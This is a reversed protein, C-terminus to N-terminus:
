PHFRRIRRDAADRFPDAYQFQFAVLRAAGGPQQLTILLPDNEIDTVTNALLAISFPLEESGSITAIDAIVPAYNVFTVDVNAHAIGTRGTSDLIEYDFSAPGHYHTDPTIVIQGTAPDFDVSLHSTNFIRSLGFASSDLDYDNALLLAERLVLKQDEVITLTDAVATPNHEIHRVDITATTTVIVGSDNTIAYTLVLPGSFNFAPTVRYLGNDLKTVPGDTFGVFTLGLGDPDIDNALLTAPDIDLTTDQVMTFGSDSVAIPPYANPLILFNVLGESEAGLSDTLTYNFSATGFYGTRPTFVADTGNMVVNGNVGRYVATISIPDGDPDVDNAILDALKLTIPINQKGEYTGDTNAFPKHNVKAFNIDITGTSTKYGDTVTYTFAMDGYKFADPVFQVRSGTLTLVRALTGNNPTISVLQVPDGDADTVHDLINAVALTLPADEFGNLVIANAVPAHDISTIGLTVKATQSHGNGDSVTYQFTAEGDYYHLAPATASFVINSGDFSISGVSPPTVSTITM